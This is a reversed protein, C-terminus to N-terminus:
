LPQVAGLDPRHLWEGWEDALQQSARTAALWARARATTDTGYHTFDNRDPLKANPLTKVWEPNPSLLVMSDLAPTTKHRWPLRKDPWGPVVRHQFHPYLVLGAGTARHGPLNKHHKQGTAGSLYACDAISNTAINDEVGYRLHMHYDTIGGDWYAGRPAGAIDHVAQLVFPISCSAQLATM